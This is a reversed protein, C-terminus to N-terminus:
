QLVTAAHQGKLGECEPMGYFNRKDASITAGGHSRMERGRSLVGLAPTQRLIGDFVNFRCNKPM